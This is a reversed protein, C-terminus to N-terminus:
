SDSELWHVLTDLNAADPASKRALLKPLRYRLLRAVHRGFRTVRGWGHRTGYIADMRRQEPFIKRTISASRLSRRDREDAVAMPDSLMLAWATRTPVSERRARIGKWTGAALAEVLQLQRKARYDKALADAKSPDFSDQRVLMAIDSVINPGTDFRHDSVAHVALHLALWHPDPFGVKEGLVTRVTTEDWFRGDDAPDAADGHFLRHHLEVILNGDPDTMPPLQHRHDLIAEIDGAVTEFPRFGAARLKTWAALTTDRGRCLIDLDRMPRLGPEPYAFMALYPGKLAVWDMDGLVRAITALAHDRELAAVAAERRRDQWRARTEDPVAARRDDDQQLLWSALPAMRHAEFAADIKQWDAAGLSRLTESPIARDGLLARGAVQWRELTPERGKM